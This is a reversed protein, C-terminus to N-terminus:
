RPSSRPSSCSRTAQRSRLCSRGCPWRCPYNWPAVSGVVGVPGRRISSTHDGSYEATAKGELNRAAGAFFTVNDVTGPVDFGEALRIPKGCQRSETQALVGAVADLEAALKHLLTSREAPTAGAWGPFASRAADVADDVDGASALTDIAVVEGTSPNTVTLPERSGGRRRRGGIFQQGARRHPRLRSCPTLVHPVPAHIM